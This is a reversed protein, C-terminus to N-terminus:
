AAPSTTEKVKPAKVESEKEEQKGEMTKVIQVAKMFHDLDIGDLEKAAKILNLVGATREEEVRSIREASVAADLQIKNLREAALAQDSQSKADLSKALIANKEMELQTAQQQQQNQAEAQKALYDALEKKDHLNSNKVILDSRFLV